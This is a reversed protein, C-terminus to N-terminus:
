EVEAERQAETDFEGEADLVWLEVEEPLGEKEELLVIVDEFLLATEKQVDADDLAEMVAEPVVEGHALPVGVRERDTEDDGECLRDGLGQMVGEPEGARKTVPVPNGENVEVTLAVLWHSLLRAADGLLLLETLGEIEEDEEKVMVVVGDGLALPEGVRERLADGVVVVLLLLLARTVGDPDRLGDTELEGEALPVRLGEALTVAETQMDADGDGDMVLVTEGLGLALPLGVRDRLLEGVWERLRVREVDTERDLERHEDADPNDDAEPVRLGVRDSLGERVADLLPAGDGLLLLEPHAVVEAEADILPDLVAHKLKLAVWNPLLLEEDVTEGLRLLDGDTDGEPERLGDVDAEGEADAFTLLEVEPEDM